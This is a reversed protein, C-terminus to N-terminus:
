APLCLEMNVSQRGGESASLAVSFSLTGFALQGHHVLDDITEDDDGGSLKKVGPDDLILAM